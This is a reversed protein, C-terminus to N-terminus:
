GSAGWVNWMGCVRPWASISKVRYAFCAMSYHYGKDYNIKLSMDGTM